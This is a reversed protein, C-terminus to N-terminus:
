ADMEMEMEIVMVMGMEAITMEMSRLIKSLALLLNVRLPEMGVVM